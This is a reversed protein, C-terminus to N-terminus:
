HQGSPPFRKAMIRKKVGKVKLSCVEHYGFHRRYWDAKRHTLLWYGARGKERAWQEGRRHLTSGIGQRRFEPHVLLGTCCAYDQMWQPPPAFMPDEIHGRAIVTLFGLIRYGSVALFLDRDSKRVYRQLKDRFASRQQENMHGSLQEVAPEVDKEIAVKLQVRSVAGAINDEVM